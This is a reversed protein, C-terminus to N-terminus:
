GLCAVAGGVGGQFFWPVEPERGFVERFGLFRVFARVSGIM